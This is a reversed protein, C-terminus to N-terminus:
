NRKRKRGVVLFGLLGAGLLLFTSPEPVPFHVGPDNSGFHMALGDGFLLDVNGLKFIESNFWFNVLTDVVAENPDNVDNFQWPPLDIFDLGAYTTGVGANADLAFPDLPANPTYWYNDGDTFGLSFTPTGDIATAFATGQTSDDFNLTNSEFIQLVEGAGLNLVGLPDITRSPGFIINGFDGAPENYVEQLFYGTIEFPEVAAPPNGAVPWMSTGTQGSPDNGAAVIGNLQIVGQFWDGESIRGDGDNDYFLESNKFFVGNYEGASAPFAFANASTLLMAAVIFVVACNRYFNKM